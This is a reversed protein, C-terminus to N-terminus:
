SREDLRQVPDRGLLVVAVPTLPRQELNEACGVGEDM